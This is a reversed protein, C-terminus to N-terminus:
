QRAGTNAALDLRGYLFDAAGEIVLSVDILENLSAPQEGGAREVWTIVAYHGYTKAYAASFGSGFAPVDKVNLPKVWGAGTETQLDRLIQNVGDASKMNIVFFQGVHKKDGSVYASRVIQTCGFKDLDGQLRGGWVAAKCDKTLESGALKFSFKGSQLDKASSAEGETIERIDASRDAIQQFGEGNFDPTFATPVLPKDAPAEDGGTFMLVAVVAVVVAVLAAAAGFLPKPGPLKRGPKDTPWFDRGRGKGPAQASGSDRAEIM